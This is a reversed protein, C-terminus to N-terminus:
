FIRKKHKRNNLTSRFLDVEELIYRAGKGKGYKVLLGQSTYTDVTPPSLELHIATEKRTLYHPKKEPIPYLLKMRDIVIAAVKEALQDTPVESLLLNGM